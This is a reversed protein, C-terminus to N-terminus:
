RATSSHASWPTPASVRVESKALVSWVHSWVALCRFDALWTVAGAALEEDTNTEIEAPAYSFPSARPRGGVDISAAPRPCSVHRRPRM